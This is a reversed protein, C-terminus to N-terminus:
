RRGRSSRPRFFALQWLVILVIRYVLGRSRRRNPRDVARRWRLPYGWDGRRSLPPLRAHAKGTPAGLTLRSTGDQTFRDGIVIM